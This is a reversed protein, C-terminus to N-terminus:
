SKREKWGQKYLIKDKDTCLCTLSCAAPTRAPNIFPPSSCKDLAKRSLDYASAVTIRIFRFNLNLQNM